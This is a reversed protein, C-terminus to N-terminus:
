RYKLSIGENARLVAAASHAASLNPDSTTRQRDDYQVHVMCVRVFARMGPSSKTQNMTFEENTYSVNMTVRRGSM